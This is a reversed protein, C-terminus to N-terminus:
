DPHLLVQQHLDPRQRRLRRLAYRFSTGQETNNNSSNIINDNIGIQDSYQNKGTPNGPMRTIEKDLLTSVEADDECMREILPVTAGLGELPPTTVFEVFSEFEIVEGTQQIIRERWLREALIRKLLNPVAGLGLGGQSIAHRLETILLDGEVLKNAPM